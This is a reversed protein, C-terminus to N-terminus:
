FFAQRQENPCRTLLYFVACVGGNSPASATSRSPRQPGARCASRCPWSPGATVGRYGTPGARRSRSTSRTIRRLSPPRRCRAAALRPRPFPWGSARTPGTSGTSRSRRRCGARTVAATPYGCCSAWSRRCCCTRDRGSWAGWDGSSSPSASSPRASATTSPRRSPRCPFKTDPPVSCSWLRPPAACAAPLRATLFPRVPIAGLPVPPLGGM